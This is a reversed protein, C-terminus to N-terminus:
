PRALPKADAPSSGQPGTRATSFPDPFIFSLNSVRYANYAVLHLTIRGKRVADPLQSAGRHEDFGFGLGTYLGLSLTWAAAVGAAVLGRRPVAELLGGLGIVVLPFLITYYRQGFALGGDWYPSFVFSVVFALGTVGSVVLFPRADTRKRLLRVFGVVALLTVPSWVFMGRHDTFLMRIPNLPAWDLVTLAAWASNSGPGAAGKLPGGAALQAILAFVGAGAAVTAAVIAADRWRRYRALGVLVGVVEAAAFYRVSISAALVLGLAAPVLTSAGPRGLLRSLLLVVVTFLLTELAHTNGPAFSGYFFLPTGFLGLVVLLAPRPLRLSRLVPVLSALTLMVFVSASMAVVAPLVPKGAISTVGLFALLKGFAYFPAEAIGLGFEYADVAPADGFLTRVFAYPREADSVYSLSLFNFNAAFVVWLVAVASLSRRRPLSDLLRGFARRTGFAGGEADLVVAVAARNPEAIM